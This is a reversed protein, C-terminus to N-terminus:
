IVIIAISICTEIQLIGPEIRCDQVTQSSNTQNAEILNYNIPLILNKSLAILALIVLILSQFWRKKIVLFRRPYVITIMRDIAIITLLHTSLDDFYIPILLVIKCFITGVLELRAGFNYGVWDILAYSM